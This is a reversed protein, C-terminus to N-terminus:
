NSLPTGGKGMAEMLRALFRLWDSASRGNSDLGQIYRGTIRDNQKITVISSGFDFHCQLHFRRTKKKDPAAQAGDRPTHPSKEHSHRRWRSLAIHLRANSFSSQSGRLALVEHTRDGVCAVPKKEVGCRSRKADAMKRAEQTSASLAGAKCWFRM